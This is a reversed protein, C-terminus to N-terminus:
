GTFRPTQGSGSEGMLPVAGRCVVALASVSVTGRDTPTPNVTTFVERGDPAIVDGTTATASSLPVGVVLQANDPFAVPDAVFNVVESQPEIKGTDALIAGEVLMVFDDGGSARFPNVM